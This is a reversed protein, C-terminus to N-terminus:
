QMVTSSSVTARRQERVQMSEHGSPQSHRLAVEPPSGTKMQWGGMSVSQWVQVLSASQSDIAAM